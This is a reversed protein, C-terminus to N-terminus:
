ALRAGSAGRRGSPRLRSVQARLAPDALRAAMTRQATRYVEGRNERSMMNTPMAALDEAVPQVLLLDAGAARVEKAETGLRRGSLERMARGFRAVPDAGPPRQLSSTPNLCVVLDLGAGAVLDLNSPSWLGGDVYRRGGIARPRYFSPIACSAAVAEAADAAPAGERGFVVREGTGYDCAVIWLSPHDPWGSPVVERVIRELPATSVMGEPMLGFALAAPTRRDLNRLGSLVLRPSAPGLRPLGGHLRFGSGDTGNRAEPRGAADALPDAGSSSSSAGRWPPRGSACFTGMISGASTGVIVDADRPDWGTERELARLSGALWASGIIGGGGLVLGVKM